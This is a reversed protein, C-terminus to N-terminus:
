VDALQHISPEVPPSPLLESTKAASRRSREGNGTPDELSKRGAQWTARNLFLQGAEQTKAEEESHQGLGRRFKWVASVARRSRRAHSESRRGTSMEWEADVEWSTM